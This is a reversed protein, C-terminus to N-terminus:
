GEVAAKALRNCEGIMLGMVQISTKAAWLMEGQIRSDTAYKVLLALEAGGHFQDKYQHLAAFLLDDSHVGIRDPLSETMAEASAARQEETMISKRYEVAPKSSIIELAGIGAYSVEWPLTRALDDFALICTQLLPTPETAAIEDRSLGCAEAEEYLVDVHCRGGADDDGVEEDVCDEIIERRVDQYPCRSAIELLWSPFRWAFYSFAALHTAHFLRAQEMSYEEPIGMKPFSQMMTDVATEILRSEFVEPTDGSVWEPALRNRGDYPQGTM